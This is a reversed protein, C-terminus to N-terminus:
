AEGDGELAGKPGKLRLNEVEGLWVCSRRGPVQFKCLWEVKCTSNKNVTEQFELSMLLLNTGKLKLGSPRESRQPSSIPSGPLM